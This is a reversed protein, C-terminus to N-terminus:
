RRIMFSRESLNRHPQNGNCNVITRKRARLELQYCCTIPFVQEALAEVVYDGGHWIPSAAGNGLAGSYHPGLVAAGVAVTNASAVVGAGILVKAQSNGYTVKLDYRELHGDIDKARFKIRVKDTPDIEVESCAALNAKFVGTSDVIKAELIRTEPEDTCIHVTGPGCEDDHAAPDLLIRNDIRLVMEHPVSLDASGCIGLVKEDVLTGDAQQRWSVIRLRYTGDAFFGNTLWRTLLTKSGTWWRNGPALNEWTGVGNHDQFHQRSEIVRRGDVIKVPFKATHTAIPGAPLDPGYYRRNFGGMSGVPVEQWVGGGADFWQLQYFDAAAGTGFDGYITVVGGFPNDGVGPSYYGEPVPSLATPNGGIASFERLCASTLNLCDGEPQPTDDVCCGDVAVFDVVTDTGVNWRTQLFSEDILVREEDEGCDQTVRFILDPACDRWGCWPYWPWIRLRTLEDVRPLRELLPERLTSLEIPDFTPTQPELPERIPFRGPDVPNPRPRRPPRRHESIMREFVSPDPTPTPEPPEPLEPNLKLIPRIRDILGAELRWHRRHWWWWPRWACCWYFEMEYYGHEDTVATRVPQKSLWWWCWDVDYATVEAGPVPSGDPCTIRGTVKFRRCWLRWAIWLRRKIFIPEYTLSSVGRFRSAPVRLELSEMMPLEEPEVTGPGVYLRVGRPKEEFVLKVTTKGTRGMKATGSVMNGKPDVAAVSVTERAKFDEVDSADIPVELVFQNEPM